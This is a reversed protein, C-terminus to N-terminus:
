EHAVKVTYFRGCGSCKYEGSKEDVVPEDVGCGVCPKDPKIIRSTDNVDSVTTVPRDTLTTLPTISTLTNTNNIISSYLIRKNSVTASLRNESRLRKVIQQVNSRGLELHNAIQNADVNGGLEDIAEFVKTESENRRLDVADGELQWAWTQEKDFSLRLEQEAIDRGEVIFEFTGDPNKYIGCNTDTAGSIVSSGRIDFGADKELTGKPKGHHAILIITTNHETAVKRINNFLDANAGAENEDIKGSIAMRLTDILVLGPKKEAIIESLEKIGAPTNLPTIRYLYTIPLDRPAHQMKLRSQLRVPGDELAFYVVAGQTTAFGLFPTGGGVGISAQMCMFSKFQKKKGAIICLGPKPFLKDIVFEIPPLDQDLLANHEVAFDHWNFPQPRTDPQPEYRGVSVAIAKIEDEPLRNVCKVEFLAAEITAQDAGQRRMAGAIRTLTDNRQGDPIPSDTTIAAKPKSGNKGSKAIDTLWEPADAIPSNDITEYPLRTVSPVAVIYSDNARIDFGPYGYKGAGPRINMGEPAKYIHQTGQEKPEAKTGGGTKAIWTAPLTGFKTELQAKSEAGVKGDFDAVLLNTCRIAVNADPWMKWWKKIQEPDTTADKLGNKTLPPAKEGAKVPFVELGASAYKLAAQLKSKVKATTETITKM